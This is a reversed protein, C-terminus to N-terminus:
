EATSAAYRDVLDVRFRGIRTAAMERITSQQLIQKAVTSRHLQYTEVRAAANEGGFRLEFGIQDLSVKDTITKVQEHQVGPRLLVTDTLCDSDLSFATDLKDLRVLVSYNLSFCGIQDESHIMWGPIFDTKWAQSVTDFRADHSYMPCTSKVRLYPNKCLSKGINRLSFQVSQNVSIWIEGRSFSGGSGTDIIPLLVADRVALIQDRIESPAMLVSGEFGRRYYTHEGPATSMHPRADSREVECVLAGDPGDTAIAYITCRELVPSTNLRCVLEFQVRFREINSISRIERAVDVGDVRESRIGYILTGGDSNAFSCIVKAINRKDSKSIEPNSADEKEKFEIQLGEPVSSECMTQLDIMTLM